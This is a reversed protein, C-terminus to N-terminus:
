VAETAIPRYGRQYPQTFWQLQRLADEPSHGAKLLFSDFGTRALYNVTDVLVDGVARLEGQWQLKRRLHRAKSFGRGDVFSPFDIAILRLGQLSPALLSADDDLALVVGRVLGAAQWQEGHELWLELSVVTPVAAHLEGETSDSRLWHWSDPALYAPTHGPAHVIISPQALNQEPM